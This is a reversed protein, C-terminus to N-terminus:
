RKINKTISQKKLRKLQDVAKVAEAIGLRGAEEFLAGATEYNGSLAQYVGKAYVAEPSSGAKRLFLEARQMDGRSMASNAANLNATADDPYMRVAIEFIEDYERSGPKSHQAVWYMERLSLKQPQTFLMRRIEEVDTYSRVEYKVVYDSHRLGPYVNRLLYAYDEPYDSKIKGDKEDPPLSSRILALIGAKNALGSTEVFRELGEWDEPEYATVLLSDPFAYQRRVYEKLTETRGKALRTNNAYSGEPSAYGKISIATIRTDLDNRVVDITRCIKQLETPNNRYDEYITTRNVPFDIYASGKTERIKVAEGEPALYVFVPVYPEPEPEPALSILSQGGRSFTENCCGRIERDLELEAGAMWAAYPIEARYRIVSGNEARYLSADGPLGGNRLHYFYRSRGAVVIMPFEASRDGSRLVPTLVAERTSKLDISGADVEMSVSLRDGTQEVEIRGVSVQGDVITQGGINWAFLLSLCVCCIKRM